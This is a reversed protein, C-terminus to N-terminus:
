SRGAPLLGSQRLRELLRRLARGRHSVADKEEDSMEGFSRGGVVFIPDYGFGREGRPREAIEGVVEAEVVWERGDPWVLAVACRFRARRQASEVGALEALLRAVRQRDGAEYRASLLGPRGGLAEVELGSDDALAPASVARALCRAKELANDAYSSEAEEPPVFDEPPPEIRLAPALIRRQERLKGPNTTAAYVIV